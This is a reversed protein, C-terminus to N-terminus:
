YKYILMGFMCDAVMYAQLDMISHANLGKITAKKRPQDRELDLTDSTFHCPPHLNGRWCSFVVDYVYM